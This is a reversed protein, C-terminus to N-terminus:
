KAESAKSLLELVRRRSAETCLLQAADGCGYRDLVKALRTLEVSSTNTQRGALIEDALKVDVADLATKCAIPKGQFQVIAAASRQATAVTEDSM